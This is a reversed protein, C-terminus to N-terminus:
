TILSPDLYGARLAIRALTKMIEDDIKTDKFLNKNTDAILKMDSEPQTKVASQISFPKKKFSKRIMEFNLFVRIGIYYGIRDKKRSYTLYGLRSADQLYHHVMRRSRCLHEAIAGVTTEISRGAGDWGSLLILMMRTMPMLRPDRLFSQKIPKIYAGNDKPAFMFHRKPLGEMLSEPDFYATLTRLTPARNISKFGGGGSRIPKPTLNPPRNM